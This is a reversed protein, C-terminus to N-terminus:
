LLTFHTQLAQLSTIFFSDYCKLLDLNTLVFLLLICDYLMIIYIIKYIIIYLLLYVACGIANNYHNYIAQM